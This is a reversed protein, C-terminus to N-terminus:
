AVLIEPPVLVDDELLPAVRMLVVVEDGGEGARHFTAVVAHGADVGAGPIPTLAASPIGAVDLVQDVLLGAVKGRAQVVVLKLDEAAPSADPGLLAPRLDVVPILAGRLNVVGAIHPPTHPLPTVTQNRLIERIGMIDLAFTRGGVRFCLVQLGQLRSM